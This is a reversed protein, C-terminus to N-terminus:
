SANLTSKVRMLVDWCAHSTAARPSATVRPKKSSVPSGILVKLSRAISIERLSRRQRRPSSPSRPFARRLRPKLDRLNPVLVSLRVDDRSPLRSLVEATSAMQPSAKESVFSGAEIATLGADALLGILTVKDDVSIIVPENQLGDRPGVEVIRVRSPFAM